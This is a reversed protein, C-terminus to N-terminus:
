AHTQIIKSMPLAKMKWRNLVFEALKSGLELKLKVELQFISDFTKITDTNGIMGLLKRAVGITATVEFM